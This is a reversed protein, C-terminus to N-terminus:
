GIARFVQPLSLAPLQYNELVDSIEMRITELQNYYTAFLHEAQQTSLPERQKPQQQM